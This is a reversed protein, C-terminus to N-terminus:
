IEEAITCVMASFRQHALKRAEALMEERAMDLIWAPVKARKQAIVLMKYTKVKQMLMVNDM